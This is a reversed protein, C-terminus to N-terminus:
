FRFQLLGTIRREITDGGPFEKHKDNFLNSVAFSLRSKAGLLEFPYGLRLNVTTYPDVPAPFGSSRGVSNMFVDAEFRKPLNFSLGINGKHHPAVGLINPDAHREQYSYNAFGKLWDNFLFEFGIEGGVIYGDGQTLITFELPGTRTVGTSMNRLDNYFLDVRAKLRRFLLVQYGLEYSTIEEPDLNKNGRITVVDAPPPFGTLVDFDVFNELVSPSRFARSISARFTHNEWPSYVIGGRPSVTVGAHPHTDVRLGMTFTIDKFPNYENQLYVSFLDQNQKEGILFSSDFIHHRYSFGPTLINKTGLSMSHHADLKFTNAIVPVEKPFIKSRLDMDLHDWAFQFKFDALSYNLKVFGNGGNAYVRTPPAPPPILGPDLDRDFADMGAAFSLRSREGFKYEAFLNGRYDERGKDNDVRGIATNPFQNTRDYEVSFKYSFADRVGAHIINSIYTGANGATETIQTGELAKPSKTIIHIVGSFANAGYLASIPSKVVEIREIEQLSIPLEHWFVLNLFDEYVSRGDIYVQMRHALRSNLGRATVNVDSVSIRFIDLGPVMRLLDPINTAGSRCIDEATIITTTSPAENLRQERRVPTIVVPNLILDDPWVEEASWRCSNDFIVPRQATADPAPLALASFLSFGATLLKLISRTQIYAPLTNVMRLLKEARAGRYTRQAGHEIFPLKM